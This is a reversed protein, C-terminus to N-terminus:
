GAMSKPSSTRTRSRSASISSARARCAHGGLDRFQRASRRADVQRLRGEGREARRRVSHFLLRDLPRPREVGVHVHLRKMRIEKANLRPKPHLGRRARLRRGACCNEMLYGVLANMAAYDASYILSRHQREQRILGARRCSRSTSPCRPTPSASRRPSRARRGNRGRGGPRAPPVSGASAGAGARRTRRHGVICGNAQGEIRCAHFHVVAMAQDLM